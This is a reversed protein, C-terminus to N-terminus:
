AEYPLASGLHTSILVGAATASMVVLVAGGGIRELTRGRMPIYSAVLILLMAPVILFMRLAVTWHWVPPPMTYYDRLAFLAFLAAGAALAIRSQVIQRRVYHERFETELEPEFRLWPFGRHLQAAHPSFQGEEFADM